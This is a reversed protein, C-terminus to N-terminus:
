PMAALIEDAKTVGSGLRQGCHDCFAHRASYRGVEEESYDPENADLCAPDLINAEMLIRKTDAPEYYRQGKKWQYTGGAIDATFDRNTVVLYLRRGPTYWDGNGTYPVHLAGDFADAFQRACNEWTFERVARQASEWAFATAEAYNDYVWRMRDCLEDFDPEWWDGADGYIFYDAKSFKSGLGYGLHAFSAHGHADTLITPLGQAIAQLPQLGFGEGRSPQLYCHASAYLDVEDEASIKGTVMEVRDGYYDGGKPSKMVLYPVPGDGWSGDKGFVARFAKHALDCGKRPGSGGILFTFRNTPSRRATPTWMDTDVGLYATRVNPHYRAFLELNHDSPVIVTQFEHLSERFAEPLNTAEWMTFLGAHQGKWWGSAHGPTSVWCAVNTLKHRRQGPREDPGLKHGGGPDNIDDYVDVGLRGLAAALQLGLRGYGISNSAVYLMTLENM